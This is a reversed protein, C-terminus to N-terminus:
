TMGSWRMKGVEVCFNFGRSVPNISEEMKEQWTWTCLRRRDEIKSSINRKQINMPRSGASFEVGICSYPNALRGVQGESGVHTKHLSGVDADIPRLMEAAEGEKSHVDESFTVLETVEIELQVIV